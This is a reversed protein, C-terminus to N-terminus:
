GGTEFQWVVEGNVAEASARHAIWGSSLLCCVAALLRLSRLDFGGGVTAGM